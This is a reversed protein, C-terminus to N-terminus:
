NKKHLFTIYLVTIDHLLLKPEKRKSLVFMRVLKFSELTSSNSGITIDHYTVGLVGKDILVM